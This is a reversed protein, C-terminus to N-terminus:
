GEEVTGRKFSYPEFGDDMDGCISLQAVSCEPHLYYNQWEGIWIGSVRHASTQAPIKEGCWECVKEKRVKVDKSNTFDAGM